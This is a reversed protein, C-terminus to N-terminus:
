PTFAFATGAHYKGMNITTGYLTRKLPTLQSVAPCVDEHDHFPFDYLTQLKGDNTTSFITGCRNAGYGTFGYLKGNMAVLGDPGGGDSGGQFKYLVQEQGATTVSFVVGCGIPPQQGGCSENGGYPATGYLTGNLVTLANPDGGDGSKSNGFSYLVREEGSTTVSFVTGNGTRGGYTTIGYLVGNFNIITTPTYGDPGHNLTGRFRHLVNLNGSPTLSFIAGCGTGYNGCSKDGGGKAVGYLTGNLVTLSVPAVGDRPNAQSFAHLIQMRGSHTLSFVAGGCNNDGCSGQQNMTGYLLGNLPTLVSTPNGYGSNLNHLVDEDGSLTLKFFTGKNYRGGFKTM